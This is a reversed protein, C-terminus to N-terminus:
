VRDKCLSEELETNFERDACEVYDEIVVTDFDDWVRISIDYFGVDFLDTEGEYIRLIHQIDNWHM